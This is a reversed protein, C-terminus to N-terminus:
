EGLLLLLLLSGGRHKGPRIHDLVPRYCRFLIMHDAGASRKGSSRRGNQACTLLHYVLATRRWRRRRCRRAAIESRGRTCAFNVRILVILSTPEPPPSISISNPNFHPM